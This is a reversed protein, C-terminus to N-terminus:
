FVDEIDQSTHRVTVPIGTEEEKEQGEGRILAKLHGFPTITWTIFDERAYDTNENGTRLITQLLHMNRAAALPPPSPLLRM